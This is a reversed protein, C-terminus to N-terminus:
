STRRRRIILATTVLTALAVIGAAALAYQLWATTDSQESTATSHQSTTAKALRVLYLKNTVTSNAAGDSDLTAGDQLTYSLTTKATGDVTVTRRKVQSTVDIASGSGNPQYVRIDGLDAASSNLTLTISGRGSAETCTLALAIGGLTSAGPDPATFTASALLSADTITHCPQSEDTAVHSAKLVDDVGSAATDGLQAASQSSTSPTPTPTPTPSTTATRPAAVITRKAPSPAPAPSPTVAAVPSYIFTFANAINPLSVNAPSGPTAVQYGSIVPATLSITQWRRYYQALAADIAQQESASPAVPDAVAPSSISKALYSQLATGDPKSGTLTASPTIDSGATTRYHVDVTAPNVLHGGVVNTTTGDGNYDSGMYWDEAILADPITTPGTTHLQVLWINNYVNNVATQDGNWLDHSPDFSEEVGRGWPNQVAFAAAHVSVISSPLTVSELKNSAFAGDTITSLGQGLTLSTLDNAWFSAAGLSTVSDPIVLSTLYNYSFANDGITQLTHSLHLSSLRNGSFAFNGVTTVTDPMDLAELQNDAFAYKGISTLNSPLTVSTLTNSDFANDGLSTGSNPLVVSSLRNNLFAYNSITTTGSPIIVSTLLNNSFASSEISTTTAPLTLSTLQNNSFASYPIATLSQPIVISTLQNHDFAWGGLSVLTSPLTVTELQNYNFAWSGITTVSDPITVSTLANHSFASGGIETISNPITVGIIGKSDFAYPDIRVVSVGGLTAPIDPNRPCAPNAANNGEHDYYGYIVGNNFSFCSDPATTAYTTPLTGLLSQGAITASSVVIAGVAVILARRVLIANIRRIAHRMTQKIKVTVGM